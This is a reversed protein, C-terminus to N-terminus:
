KKYAKLLKKLAPFIFISIKNTNIYLYLNGLIHIKFKFHLITFILKLILLTAM